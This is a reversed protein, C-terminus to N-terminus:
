LVRRLAQKKVIAWRRTIVRHKVIAPPIFGKYFEPDQYREFADDVDAAPLSNVFSRYEGVADKNETFLEELEKEEAETLTNSVKGLFLYRHYGTINAM